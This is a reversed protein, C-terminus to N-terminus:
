ESLVRLWRLGDLVGDGNMGRAVYSASAKTKEDANGIAVGWGCGKIMGMDNESDGIAAVRDLGLGLVECAKKVGVLKDMGREMIHIAWGTTQVDVPVPRLLERVLGLDMDQKLGVETERWRDTFLRQAGPLERRLLEWAEMPREVDGLVWVRQRHCVVGGNEAVIPGRFGMYTSVAYAIPLVNGSALMVSVGSDEVRRLAAVAELSMRRSDDTLTGDIDVVVARVDGPAPRGREGTM